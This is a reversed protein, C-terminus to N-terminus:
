YEAELRIEAKPVQGKLRKEDAEVPWENRTEEAGIRM